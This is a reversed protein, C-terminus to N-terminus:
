ATSELIIRGRPQDITLVFRDLLDARGLTFLTDTGEVFICRVALEVAGIRIPLRGVRGHVTNGQIGTIPGTPLAAWDLGVDDALAKPVMSFDAGSDLLLRIRQEGTGARVVVAIKPESIRELLTRKQGLRVEISPLAIRRKSTSSSWCPCGNMVCRKHTSLVSSRATHSRPHSSQVTVRRSTAVGMCTKFTMAGDNLLIAVNPLWWSLREIQLM